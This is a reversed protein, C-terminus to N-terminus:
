VTPLAMYEVLTCSNSPVDLGEAGKSADRFFMYFTHEKTTLTGNVEIVYPWELKYSIPNNHHLLLYKTIAQDLGDTRDPKIVSIQLSSGSTVSRAIGDSNSGINSEQTESRNIDLRSYFIQVFNGGGVDMSLKVNSSSYGQTTIVWEVFASATLSEGVAPRIDKTGPTIVSYVGVINYVFGDYFETSADPFIFVDPLTFAANIARIVANGFSEGKYEIAADPILFDIKTTVAYTLTDENIGTKEDGIVATVANIYKTVTNENREPKRYEGENEFIAFKYVTNDIFSPLSAASLKDAIKETLEHLPIM